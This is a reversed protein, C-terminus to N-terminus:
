GRVPSGIEKKIERRKAHKTPIWHKEKVNKAHGGDPRVKGTSLTRWFPLLM